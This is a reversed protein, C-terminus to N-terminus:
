RADLELGEMIEKQVQVIENFLADSNQPFTIACMEVKSFQHVRFLGRSEHGHNGTEPRFCHNFGVLKIPLDSFPIISDAHMGVLPIEATASLCLGNSNEVSYLQDDLSISASGRPHFGCGFVLDKSVIDPPLVPTFGHQICISMAYQILNLELLAAENKLYYFRSGINRAATEFDVLDLQRGVQLHDVVNLNSAPVRKGLHGLEVNCEPTEPHSDNPIFFAAAYLKEKTKQLQDKLDLLKPKILKSQDILSDKLPSSAAQSVGDVIANQKTAMQNHQETLRCFDEYLQVVENVDANVKRKQINEIICNRDRAIRKFDFHSRLIRQMLHQKDPPWYRQLFNFNVKLLRNSHQQLTRRTM